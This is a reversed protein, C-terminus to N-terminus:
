TTQLTDNLYDFSTRPVDLSISKQNKMFLWELFGIKRGSKKVITELKKEEM